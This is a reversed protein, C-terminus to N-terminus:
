VELIHNIKNCDINKSITFPLTIGCKVPLAAVAAEKLDPYASRVAKLCICIHRSTVGMTKFQKVEHCCVPSPIPTEGTIYPGCPIIKTKVDGCTYAEVPEVMVEVMCLVVLFGIIVGKM